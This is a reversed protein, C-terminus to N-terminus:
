QLRLGDLRQFLLEEFNAANVGFFLSGNDFQLLELRLLELMGEAGRDHIVLNEGAAQLFVARGLFLEDGLALVEARVM